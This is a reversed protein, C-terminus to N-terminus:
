IAASMQFLHKTTKTQGYTVFVSMDSAAIPGIKHVSQNKFDSGFLCQHNSM